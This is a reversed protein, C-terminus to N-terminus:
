GDKGEERLWQMVEISTDIREKARRSIEQISMEHKAPAFSYYNQDFEEPAFHRAYEVDLERETIAAIPDGAWMFLARELAVLVDLRTPTPRSVSINAVREEPHQLIPGVDIYERTRLNVLHLYSESSGM